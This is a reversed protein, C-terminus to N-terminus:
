FPPKEEDFTRPPSPPPKWDVGINEDERPDNVWSCWSSTSAHGGKLILLNRRMNNRWQRNDIGEARARNLARAAANVPRLV